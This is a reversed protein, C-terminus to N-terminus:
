SFIKKISIDKRQSLDVFETGVMVLPRAVNYKNTMVIKGTRGDSLLVEYQIFNQAMREIFLVLMQSDFKIYSTDYLLGFVEFPSMAPRGEEEMTLTDYADAIALVRSVNNLNKYSMQYPFGTLDMREHHTLVAQKVKLDLNKEKIMNYGHIMHNIGSKNEYEDHFLINEELLDAKLQKANTISSNSVVAFKGRKGNFVLPQANALSKDQAATSYRVHGIAIDAEPLSELVAESFVESVLGLNKHYLIKNDSSLAIGCAEQGRHQLAYLGYYISRALERKESSYVGIIGCEESMSDGLLKVGRQYDM